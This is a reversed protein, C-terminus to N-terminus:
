ADPRGQEAALRAAAVALQGHAIGGDNPSLLEPTLVRLGDDGLDRPTDPLAEREPASRTWLRRMLHLM